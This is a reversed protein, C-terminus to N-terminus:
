RILSRESAAIFELLPTLEAQTPALATL